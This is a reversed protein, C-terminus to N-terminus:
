EQGNAPQVRPEVHLLGERLARNVTTVAHVSVLRRQGSTPPTFLLTGPEWTTADYPASTAEFFEQARDSATDLAEKVAAEATNHADQADSGEADVFVVVAVTHRRLNTTPTPM